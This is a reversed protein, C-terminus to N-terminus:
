KSTAWNFVVLFCFIINCLFERVVQLHQRPCRRLGQACQAVVIAHGLQRLWYANTTGRMGMDCMTTSCMKATSVRPVRQRGLGHSPAVVKRTHPNVVVVRLTCPTGAGLHHVICGGRPFPTPRGTCAAAAVVAWGTCTPSYNEFGQQIKM